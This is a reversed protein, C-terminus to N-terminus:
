NDFSMKCGAVSYTVSSGDTFYIVMVTELPKYGNKKVDSKNLM